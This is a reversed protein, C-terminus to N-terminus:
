AIGGGRRQGDRESRLRCESGPLSSGPIALLLILFRRTMCGRGPGTRRRAVGRRQSLAPWFRRWWTRTSSREPTSRLVTVAAGHSMGRRYPRDTTMADYADSVHIIRAALPTEEGAQGHPYGSGDWNEHHLEVAASILRLARCWKWFENASRRISGCWAIGRGDPPWTEAARHRLHRDQRHRAASRRDSDRGAARGRRGHGARHRPFNASAAATAPPTVTGRTWRAQWPASLNWM